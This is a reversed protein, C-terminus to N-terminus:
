IITQTEDIDVSQQEMIEDKSKFNFFDTIINLWRKKKSYVDKYTNICVTYIWNKISKQEDLKYFNNYIKLWTDQFLDDADIKNNTLKLCLKYLDDKYIDIM